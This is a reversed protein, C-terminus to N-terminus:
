NRISGHDQSKQNSVYPVYANVMISGIKFSTILNLLSLALKNAKVTPFKWNM